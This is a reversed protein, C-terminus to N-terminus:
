LVESPHYSVFIVDMYLNLTSELAEKCETFFIKDEQTM